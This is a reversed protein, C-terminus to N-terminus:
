SFILNARIGMAFRLRAADAIQERGDVGGYTTLQTNSATVTGTVTVTPVSADIAVRLRQAGDVTALSETRKLLMKLIQVTEDDAPLVSQGAPTNLKVEKIDVYSM